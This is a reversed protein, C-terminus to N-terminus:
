RLHMCLKLTAYIPQPNVTLYFHGKLQKIDINGHMTQLNWIHDRFNNNHANPTEFNLSILGESM